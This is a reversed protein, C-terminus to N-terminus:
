SFQVVDNNVFGHPFGPELAMRGPLTIELLSLPNMLFVMIQKPNKGGFHLFLKLM